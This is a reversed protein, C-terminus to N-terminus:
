PYKKGVKAPDVPRFMPEVFEEATQDPDLREALYTEERRVYQVPPLKGLAPLKASEILGEVVGEERIVRTCKFGASRLQAVAEDIRDAYSKKLVVILVSIQTLTYPM